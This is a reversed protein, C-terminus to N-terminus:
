YVVFVVVAADLAKSMERQMQLRLDEIYSEKDVEADADLLDGESDYEVAYWIGLIVADNPAFLPEFGDAEYIVDFPPQEAEYQVKIVDKYTREVMEKLEASVTVSTDECASKLLELDADDLIEINFNNRLFICDRGFSGVRRYVSGYAGDAIFNYKENKGLRQDYQGLDTKSNLYENFAARYGSQLTLYEASLVNDNDKGILGKKQALEYDTTIPNFGNSEGITPVIFQITMGEKMATDEKGNGGASKTCGSFAFVAFIALIIVV